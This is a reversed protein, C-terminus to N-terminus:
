AQATRLVCRKFAKIQNRDYGTLYANLNLTKGKPLKTPDRKLLIPYLRGDDNNPVLGVVHGQYTLFRSPKVKKAKQAAIAAFCVGCYKGNGNIPRIDCIPCKARKNVM